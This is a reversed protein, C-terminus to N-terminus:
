VFNERDALSVFIVEDKPSKNKIYESELVPQRIYHQKLVTEKIDFYAGFPVVIFRDIIM